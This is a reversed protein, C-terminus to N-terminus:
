KISVLMNEKNLDTSEVKTDGLYREDSNLAVEELESESTVIDVINEKSSAKISSILRGFKKNSLSVDEAEDNLLSAMMKELQKSARRASLLKVGHAIARKPLTVVDLITPIAAIGVALGIVIPGEPILGFMTFVLGAGAINGAFTSLEIPGMCSNGNEKTCSWFKKSIPILSFKNKRITESDNAEHAVIYNTLLTQQGNEIHNIQYHICQNDEAYSVCSAEISKSRDKNYIVGAWTNISSFAFIVVLIKKM